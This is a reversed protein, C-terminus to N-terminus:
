ELAEGTVELFVDELTAEETHVTEVHGKALLRRFRENEALGDLDFREVSRGDCRRSVVRLTRSGYERKLDDPAAVLPMRGDVLFAVRDCLRDAVAMDHTTLLVTRGRDALDVVLDQVLRANRPDIGSTPEDLLLLDPDHVLARAVNLRMRMGKSYAGVRRDIADELGVLGCLEAPDRTEGRHLSAFLALNERGTLKPYHNPSEGSVGIREYYTADWERVERGFAAVSGEYGDLLGTLVRQTTSKGAGSPGLFGFIEGSEVSFDLGYLTPESAGPYTFRLGRVVIM